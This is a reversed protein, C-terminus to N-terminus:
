PYLSTSPDHQGTTDETTEQKATKELKKMLSMCDKTLQLKKEAKKKNKSAPGWNYGGAEQWASKAADM